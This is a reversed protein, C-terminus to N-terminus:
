AQAIKESPREMQFMVNDQLDGLSEYKTLRMLKKTIRGMREIQERVKFLKGYLPDEESVTLMLLEAHGSAAMMPQNLEHCVNGAMKLVAQLNERCVQEKESRHRYLAIEIATMIKLDEFPAVIYGFSEMSAWGGARNDDSHATLYVIPIDTGDKTIDAIKIGDPIDKIRTDMLVLDPSLAKITEVAKEGTNVIGCVSYGLLNLKRKIEDAVHSEHEVVLINAKIM